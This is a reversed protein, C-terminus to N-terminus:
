LGYPFAHVLGGADHIPSVKRPLRKHLNEIGHHLLVQDGKFLLACM